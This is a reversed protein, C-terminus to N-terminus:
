YRYYHRYGYYSRHRPRYYGYNHKRYYPRYHRRYNYHRKYGYNRRYGYNRSYGRHGRYGRGYGYYTAKHVLGQQSSQNTLGSALRADASAPGAMAFVGISFLGALLVSPILRM